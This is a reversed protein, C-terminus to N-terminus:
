RTRPPASYVILRLGALRYGNYQTIARRVTDMEIFAFPPQPPRSILDVAKVKGIQGFLDSLEQATVSAALDGVYLRTHDM